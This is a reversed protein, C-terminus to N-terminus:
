ATLIKASKGPLLQAEGKRDTLFGPNNNASWKQAIVRSVENGVIITM